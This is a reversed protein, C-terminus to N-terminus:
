LEKIAQEFRYGRPTILRGGVVKTSENGIFVTTFMDVCRHELEALTCIFSREGDRGIREVYGCCREPPLYELLIRCAAALYDKRKHSSPNYLVICFDGQAAARLRKEIVQRPTLLDSLSIVAFDNTLPSGLVAAGSTAATIGPLIKISVDPYAAALEYLLGAMGYVGADGSCIFLVKKGSSACELAARCRAEEQRMPTSIVEKGPILPKVLDVYVSYGAVVDCDDLAKRVQVTMQDPAGPGIGAVLLTRDM